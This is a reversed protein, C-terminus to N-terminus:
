EERPVLHELASSRGVYLLLEGREFMLTPLHASVRLAGATSQEQTLELERTESAGKAVLSRLFARARVSGRVDTEPRLAFRLTSNPLLRLLRVALTNGREIQESGELQVEYRSLSESLLPRGRLAFLVGAAAALGVVAVYAGRLRSPRPALSRASSARETGADAAALQAQIADVFSTQLAESLPQTLSEPLVSTPAAEANKPPTPRRESVAHLADDDRALRALQDLTDESRAM